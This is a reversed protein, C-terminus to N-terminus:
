QHCTISTTLAAFTLSVLGEENGAYGVELEDFEQRGPFARLQKLARRSAYLMANHYEIELERNLKEATSLDPRHASLQEFEYSDPEDSGVYTDHHSKTRRKTSLVKSFKLQRKDLASKAFVGLLSGVGLSTSSAHNREAHTSLRL